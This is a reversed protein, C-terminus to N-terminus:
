WDMEECVVDPCVSLIASNKGGLREGDRRTHRFKVVAEEPSGAEVEATRREEAVRYHVRYRM